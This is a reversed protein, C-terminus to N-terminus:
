NRWSIGALDFFGTLGNATLMFFDKKGTSDLYGLNRFDGVPIILRKSLTKVKDFGAEWAQHQAPARVSSSTERM